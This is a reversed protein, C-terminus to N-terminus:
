RGLYIDTTIVDKFDDPHADIAQDLWHDIEETSEVLGRMEIQLGLYDTLVDKSFPRKKLLEQAEHMIREKASGWKNIPLKPREGAMLLSTGCWHENILKLTKEYYYSHSKITM